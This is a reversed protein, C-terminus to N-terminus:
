ETAPEESKDEEFYDFAGELYYIVWEAVNEAHDACREVHKAILLLQLYGEINRTDDKMSRVMQSYIYSYLNDVLDDMKIVTLAKERDRTVYADLAISTMKRCQEFMKNLDSPIPLKYDGAIMRRTIMCIDEAHDGMRELDTILKLNSTIDRLDSAVPQQRAILLVCAKNIQITAQDIIDDRAIVQDCLAQDYKVLAQNASGLATEVLSGLRIMDNHLSEMEKTFEVRMTM